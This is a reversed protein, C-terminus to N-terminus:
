FFVKDNLRLNIITQRIFAANEINKRTMYYYAAAIACAIVFGSAIIRKKRTEPSFFPEIPSKGLIHKLFKVLQLDNQQPMGRQSFPSSYSRTTPYICTRNLKQTQHLNKFILAQPLKACNRSLSCRSLSM